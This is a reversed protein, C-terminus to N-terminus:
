RTFKLELYKKNKMGIMDNFDVGYDENWRVFVQEVDNNALVNKNACTIAAALGAGHSDNDAFIVLTKVGKPAKFAKLIATNMAAWTPIKSLQTAALATEIGETIGLAEGHEFLRVACSQMTTNGCSTCVVKNDLASYIKKNREIDAKKGNELFTKHLYIINMHDDTAISYMAQYSRNSEKDYEAKSFKVSSTPLTYIGRNNLYTQVPTNEIRGISSFRTLIQDQKKPIFERQEKFEGSPIEPEYNGFEKDIEAAVEKFEKGTADMILQIGFGSSCTCIYSGSGQKNDIRFNKKGCLPCEIHKLSVISPLGYFEFAELWRGQMFDITKMKSAM